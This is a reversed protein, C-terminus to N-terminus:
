LLLLKTTQSVPLTKEGKKLDLEIQKQLKNWGHVDRANGADIDEHLKDEWDMLMNMDNAAEVAQYGDRDRVDEIPPPPPIEVNISEECIQVATIKMNISEGHIQVAQIKM